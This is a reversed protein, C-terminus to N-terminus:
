LKTRCHKGFFKLKLPMSTLSTHVNKDSNYWFDNKFLKLNTIYYM